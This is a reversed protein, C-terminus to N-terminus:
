VIQVINLSHPKVKVKMHPVFEGLDKEFITVNNKDVDNYVDPSDGSIGYLMVKKNATSFSLHITPSEEPHKNIVSLAIGSKDSWKTVLIDLSALEIEKENKDTVKM